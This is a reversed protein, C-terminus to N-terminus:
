VFPDRRHSSSHSTLENDTEVDRHTRRYDQQRNDYYFDNGGEINRNYFDAGSETNKQEKYYNHNTRPRDFENGAEFNQAQKHQTYEHNAERNQKKRGMFGNSTIKIQGKQKFLMLILWLAAFGIIIYILRSLLSSQTGFIGAVFDYQMLGICLWNAAGLLVIIFSILTIM